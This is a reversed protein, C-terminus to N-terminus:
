EDEYIARNVEYVARSKASEALLALGANLIALSITGWLVWARRPRGVARAQASAAVLTAGLGTVTLGAPAMWFWRAYAERMRVYASTSQLM